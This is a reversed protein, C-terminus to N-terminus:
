FILLKISAGAKSCKLFMNTATFATGTRYVVGGTNIDTVIFGVPIRGLTHAVTDQTDVVANSIYSVEVGDFNDDFNLGRNLLNGLNTLIDEILLLLDRDFDRLRQQFQAFLGQTTVKKFEPM